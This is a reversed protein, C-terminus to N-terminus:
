RGYWAVLKALEGRKRLTDIVWAHRPSGLHPNYAFHDDVQEVAMRTAELRSVGSQAFIRALWRIVPYTLVLSELGPWLAKQFNSGGAFQVSDIKLRYYRTLLAEAEADPADWALEAAAFTTDPIRAHLRPIRGSGRAIRWASNLRRLRTKGDPGADRGVDRRAYLAATQRFLIRGLWRPPAVALPSVSVDEAVARGIVRLFESLRKGTVADFRSQRCLAAVALIKRLRHDVPTSEDSVTEVLCKTFRLLDPWNGPQNPQLGPPSAVTPAGSGRELEEAFDALEDAHDAIPRGLNQSASPCGLRVSVRWHDGAPVLIFPYLRCALPKGQAGFKAHIRCKQDTGLFVCAGTATQALQYHGATGSTGPEAWGQADLTEKEADTVRVTYGRCCDGCHHCDWSQVLPLAKVPLAM